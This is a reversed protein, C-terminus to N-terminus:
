NSGNKPHFGQICTCMKERNPYCIGYPGCPSLSDCQQPEQPHFAFLRWSKRGEIWEYHNMVGSDEIAIRSIISPDRSYYWFLVDPEVVVEYHSLGSDMDPNGSYRVGNWPGGRWLQRMSSWIFLQPDGQLDLGMVYDGSSPDSTNKWSTVYAQSRRTQNWGVKMGPLVTDTPFNFSERAFSDSDVEKVIFNGDDLLRAVPNALALSSSSWFVTSNDDTIVLTGNATITLIGSRSNIPRNRNAVWVVTQIPINHYWIGIYRNSSGAPSFFGLEFISGTSILTTGDDALPQSPILSDGGISPSFLAAVLLFLLSSVKDIRKM